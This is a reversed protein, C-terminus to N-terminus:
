KANQVRYGVIFQGNEIVEGMTKKETSEASNNFRNYVMLEGNVKQVAFTHYGEFITGKRNWISVIMVDGEGAERELADPDTYEEYQVGYQKLVQPAGYPNTGWAGGGAMAGSIEYRRGVEALSPEKGLLYLANYTGIVGCGSDKMRSNGYAFEGAADVGQGHVPRGSIDHMKNREYNANSTEIAQALGTGPESGPVSPIPSLATSLGLAARELLPRVYKTYAAGVGEAQAREQALTQAQLAAQQELFADWWSETDQRKKLTGYGGGPQLAKGTETGAKRREPRLLEALAQGAYVADRYAPDVGELAFGPAGQEPGAPPEGGPAAQAMSRRQGALLMTGAGSPPNEPLAAWPTREARRAQGPWAEGLGPWPQKEGTYFANQAGAGDPLNEPLAAWPPREARRAQGPWAEGLGPWPQKEGTYFANQAGAGDPLNEPLAARPPEGARRAQGPWAEGLGPWPQKEGTYFANQAGAGSPAFPKREEETIFPQKALRESFAEDWSQWPKEKRQQAAEFAATYVRRRLKEELAKKKQEEQGMSWGDAKKM